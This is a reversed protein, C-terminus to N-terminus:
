NRRTIEFYCVFHEYKNNYHELHNDKIKYLIGNQGNKCFWTKGRDKSRLYHNGSSGCRVCVVWDSNFPSPNPDTIPNPVIIFEQLNQKIFNTVNDILEKKTSNIDEDRANNLIYKPSVGPEGDKGSCGVLPHGKPLIGEFQEDEKLTGLTGHYLGFAFTFCNGTNKVDEGNLVDFSENENSVRTGNAITSTDDVLGDRCCDFELCM